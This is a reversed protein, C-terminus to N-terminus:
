DRLVLWLGLGLALAGAIFFLLVTLPAKMAWKRKKKRSRPKRSSSVGPKGPQSRRSMTTREPQTATSAEATGEGSVEDPSTDASPEPSAETPTAPPSILSEGTLDEVFEQCTAPRDEPNNNMARMIARDLRISLGPVVSRPPAIVGQLKNVMIQLPEKAAFPTQGTVMEYLTAGLSYIDCRVGANKADRFQEPAMYNPTGLGHGAVTLNATADVQKALGLDMIKAVGEQTVMINDPKIDRHILGQCHASHLGQCVQVLVHIAEQETMRDQKLLGAVSEGQVFEMVLYPTKGQHGYDLVRVINPHDLKSAIRFEQEFRKLLTANKAVHPAMQKIAVIEQTHIQRAKYVTGMSGEGLQRLLEYDGLKGLTKAAERPPM